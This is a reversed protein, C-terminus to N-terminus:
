RINPTHSVPLCAGTMHFSKSRGSSNVLTLSMKSSGGTVHCGSPTDPFTWYAVPNRSVNTSVSAQVTPAGKSPFGHISFAFFLLSATLVAGIIERSYLRTGGVLSGVVDRATLEGQDDLERAFEVVREHYRRGRKGRYLGSLREILYIRISMREFSQDGM